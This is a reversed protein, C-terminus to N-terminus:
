ERQPRKSAEVLGQGDALAQPGLLHHFVVALEVVEIPQLQRRRDRRLWNGDPHAPDRIERQAARRVPQAVAPDDGVRGFRHEPQAAVREVAVRHVAQQRELALVELYRGATFQCGLTGAVTWAIQAPGM